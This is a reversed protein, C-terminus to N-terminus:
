VPVFKTRGSGVKFAARGDEVGVFVAQGEGTVEYGGGDVGKVGGVVPLRVWGKVNGPVVVEVEMRGGKNGGVRRWDVGVEGRQTFVGGRAWELGMKGDRGFDPPVFDVEGAGPNTVRVGLMTELVDVAAQSGWGHSCSESGQPTWSEWTFTGNRALIDAWGDQNPTTLLELVADPRNSAQLAKLLTHATMPGQNMGLSTIYNALTTTSNQSPPLVQYALAYSNAHQSAHPSQTGNVYLGDIYIGDDSPRRLNSTISETLDQAKATYNTVTPVELTSAALAVTRLAHLAQINVTTRAATAMDYGYRGAAPWDVIGYLYPGSGGSLNTVLGRTPGTEPIHQLVYDAVSRMTDYAEALLFKDGTEIHYRWVWDVFMLTYDPIDRGGDGNPYVANIQGYRKKSAIFERIAKQTADREGWAMMTAYSIAVADGLFQGKERTPTDVFQHQVSYLASRQLLGWVANLTEDSSHFNAARGEPVDTHEILATLRVSDVNLWGDKQPTSLQLYRWGWHLFATVNHPGDSGRQTYRMAMNSGQTDTEKTSVHGDPVLNYGTLINVVRGAVGGASFQLLPRAPMVTGFDRVLTGDSLVMDQTVIPQNIYTKQLRPEQGRLMQFPRTSVTANEWVPNGSANEDYGPLNWGVPERRADIYEVYDGADANRRPAGTEFQTARRVRWTGDTVVAQQRNAGGYEIVLKLLFGRETKAEPRGQGGGYWHYIAGVTLKAGHGTVADRVVQTVDTAQYYGEGPYSFAPGDDVEIGNLCLRYQHYASTYARARQIHTSGNLGLTIEKRVLTYEDPESAGSRRNIWAAGSWDQMEPGGITLTTTLGMDFYVPESWGSVEDNQDWTRVTFSYQAGPQLYRASDPYQVYAQESSEVKGSDWHLPLPSERVGIVSVQIQYAAQTINGPGSPVVWSFLPYGEVNLARVRDNVTLGTPRVEEPNQRPTLECSPPESPASTYQSGVFADGIVAPSVLLGAALLFTSFKWRM